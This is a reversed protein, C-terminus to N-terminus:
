SKKSALNHRKEFKRIAALIDNFIANPALTEGIAQKCYKAINAATQIEDDTL